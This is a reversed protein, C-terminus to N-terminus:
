IRKSFVQHRLLAHSIQYVPLTNSYSTGWFNIAPLMLCFPRQISGALVSSVGGKIKSQCIPKSNEPFVVHQKCYNIATNLWEALIHNIDMSAWCQANYYLALYSCLFKWGLVSPDEYRPTEQSLVWHCPTVRLMHGSMIYPLKQWIM